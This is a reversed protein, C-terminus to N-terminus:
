DWWLFLEGSKELHQALQAVPSGTAESCIEQIQKAVWKSNKLKGTFRARVLDPGIHTVVFPERQELKKLWQNLDHCDISQGVPTELAILAKQYDPDPVLILYTAGYEMLHESLFGCAGLAALKPRVDELLEIAKEPDRIKFAKAGELEGTDLRMRKPASKTM